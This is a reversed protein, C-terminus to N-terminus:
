ECEAPQLRQVVGLAASASYVPRQLGIGTVVGQLWGSHAPRRVMAHSTAYAADGVNRFETAIKITTYSTVVSTLCAAHMVSLVTLHHLQKYANIVRDLMSDNTKHSTVPRLFLCRCQIVHLKHAIHM